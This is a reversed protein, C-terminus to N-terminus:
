FSILLTFPTAALRCRYVAGARVSYRAAARSVVKVPSASGAEGAAFSELESVSGLVCSCVLTPWESTSSCSSRATRGPRFRAKVCSSATWIRVCTLSTGCLFRSLLSLTM